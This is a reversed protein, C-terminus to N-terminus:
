YVGHDPSLTHSMHQTCVLWCRYHKTEKFPTVRGHLPFPSRGVHLWMNATDCVSSTSWRSARTSWAVNKGDNSKKGEIIWISSSALFLTSFIACIDGTSDSWSYFQWNSRLKYNPVLRIFIADVITSENTNSQEWYCYYNTPFHYHLGQMQNENDNCSMRLLVDNERWEPQSHVQKSKHCTYHTRKHAQRRGM